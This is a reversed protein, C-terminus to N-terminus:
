FLIKLVDFSEVSGVSIFYTNKVPNSTEYLLSGFCKKLTPFVMLATHSLSYKIQMLDLQVTSSLHLSVKENWKM